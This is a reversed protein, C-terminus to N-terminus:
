GYPMGKMWVLLSLNLRMPMRQSEEKRNTVIQYGNLLMDMLGKDRWLMGFFGTLFGGDVLM